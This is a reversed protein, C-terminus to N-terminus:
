PLTSNNPVEFELSLMRDNKQPYPPPPKPHIYEFCQKAPAILHGAHIKVVYATEIHTLDDYALVETHLKHSQLPALYSRYSQPIMVGDPALFREAGDLCEPSLENDSFSGLLESIMIDAKEPANWVRMDSEIIEVNGNWDKERLLGRLCVIANPNKEVAYVKIPVNSRIGANIAGKVLPGRGAGVVMVIITRNRSAMDTLAACAADEYRSYKIPDKEFVEYTQSELNDMLPQLPAQLYDHYPAEELEQDTHTENAKLNVVYNKYYSLDRGAAALRPHIDGSFIVQVKYKMLLKLFNLHRPPLTFAQQHGVTFLDTGIIIGKLPEGVWRGLIRESPLNQTMELVVGLRNHNQCLSRLNNWLLWANDNDPSQIDSELTLPVRIWVNLYMSKLLVSIIIRALNPSAKPPLDILVAPLTSHAAYAMEKKLIDCSEGAIAPDSSDYDIHMNGSWTAVKGVIMSCWSTVSLLRESRGFPEFNHNQMMPMCAFDLEQGTSLELIDDLVPYAEMDVRSQEGRAPPVAGMCPSRVDVGFHIGHHQSTM